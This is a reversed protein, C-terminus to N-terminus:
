PDVRAALVGPGTDEPAVPSTVAPDAPSTGETAAMDMARDARSVPGVRDAPAVQAAPDVRDRDAPDVRDRVAPAV